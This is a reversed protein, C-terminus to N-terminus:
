ILLEKKLWNYADDITESDEGWIILPEDWVNRMRSWLEALKMQDEVAKKGSHWYEGHVFLPTPKPSTHVLFDVIQSGRVGALGVIYQYEYELKLMTLAVSVNVENQSGATMGQIYQKDAM